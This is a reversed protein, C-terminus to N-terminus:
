NDALLSLCQQGSGATRKASHAKFRRSLDRLLLL